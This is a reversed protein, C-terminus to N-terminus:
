TCIRQVKEETEKVMDPRFFWREGPEPWNLPTRCRRGYLSEFPAMKISEQYNNNYSFEALPLCDDWKQPFELICAQLMDQLIQNVRKTQGSTQPHYASSHLLKTGLSKHLEEWFKSVFQPGHDSVITKPIGHLSLIRAIYLQAYTIVPYYTKVPLFHDIKTFRDIIVWISDFGKATRPLGVIFDMSIDEWKWTPIPLSQLPGATKMHIAKVRRCTDCRAVYRAIEIKMKTWWYHQKLDHYMKTSGPHISYHSLHAEDLIQQRVEDNKPVVIRNNLWVIGQDDKRFCNAKGAKIKEHIHKMDDDSRQADIIRQLLVSEPKLHNLTGHQIIGLNLKEMEQCLPIDSTKMTLCHCSAKRSLADAVVNTEGPHYHIELEYDKILELWRRQRM